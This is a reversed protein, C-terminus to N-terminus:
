KVFPDIGVALFLLSLYSISLHFLKMPALDAEGTRVRKRLAYAEWLFAVGLIASSIAYVWGTEGVPILAWSSGVMLWSYFIIHRAVTTNEAEVPLMPVGARAYEDKYRMSLPWYHPPTWFFVVLFLMVPALSVSDRVAAWGILVPMCGAVGGWVINQTTRRKLLMTYGVVYLVIAAASLLASLHNVFIELVAYSLVSLTFGFIITNRPSIQGTVTPRHMTREMLADIDRDLYCNLVNAGGAALSGGLLTWCVNALSPFGGAALFM